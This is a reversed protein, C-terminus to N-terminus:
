LRVVNDMRRVVTHRFSFQHTFAIPAILPDFFPHFRNTNFRTWLACQVKVIDVNKALAMAINSSQGMGFGARVLGLITMLGCLSALGQPSLLPLNCFGASTYCARVEM